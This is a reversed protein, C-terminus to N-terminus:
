EKFRLVMQQLAPLRNTDTSKGLAIEWRDLVVLPVISRCTEHEIAEDFEPDPCKVRIINEEVMTSVHKSICDKCYSDHHCKSGTFM